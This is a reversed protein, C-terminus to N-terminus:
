RGYEQQIYRNRNERAQQLDKILAVTNPLTTKSLLHGDIFDAVEFTFKASYILYFVYHNIGCKLLFASDPAVSEKLTKGDRKPLPKFFRHETHSEFYDFGMDQIIKFVETEIFSQEKTKYKTGGVVKPRAYLCLKLEFFIPKQRTKSDLWDIKQPNDIANKDYIMITDDSSDCAVLCDDINRTKKGKLSSFDIYPGFCVDKFCVSRSDEATFGNLSKYARSIDYLPFDGFSGGRINNIDTDPYRYIWVKPIEIPEQKAM